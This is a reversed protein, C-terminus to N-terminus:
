MSPNAATIQQASHGDAMPESDGTPRTMWPWERREMERARTWVYAWAAPANRNQIFRHLRRRVTHLYETGLSDHAAPTGRNYARVATDLDLAESRLPEPVTNWNELHMRRWLASNTHVDHVTTHWGVREGGAAITVTISSVDFMAAYPDIPKVYPLILDTPGYFWVRGLVTCTLSLTLVGVISRRWLASRGATPVQIPPLRVEPCTAEACRLGLIAPTM